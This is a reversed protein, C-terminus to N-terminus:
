PDTTGRSRAIDRKVLTLRRRAEEDWPHYFLTVQEEESGDPRFVRGVGLGQDPGLNRFALVLSGGDRCTLTAYVRGTSSPPSDMDGRCLPLSTNDYLIISGLGAMCTRDMVGGAAAHWDSAVALPPGELALKPSPPAAPACGALFFCCLAALVRCSRM